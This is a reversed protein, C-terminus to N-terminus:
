VLVQVFSTSFANRLFSHYSWPLWIVLAMSWLSLVSLLALVTYIMHIICVCAIITDVKSHLGRLRGGDGVDGLEESQSQSVSLNEGYNGGM